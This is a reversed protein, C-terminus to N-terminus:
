ASCLLKRRGVMGIVEGKFWRPVKADEHTELYITDADIEPIDTHAHVSFLFAADYHGSPEKYRIDYGMLVALRVASTMLKPVDFGEVTAGSEHALISAAGLNCGFDFVRKGKLDGLMKHRELLDDRRGKVIRKGKYHVSQYPKGSASGFRLEPNSVTAAIYDKIPVEVEPCPIDLYRAIAYRHNGDVILKDGNFRTVVQIPERVGNLRIDNLLRDFRRLHREIGDSTGWSALLYDSFGGRGILYNYHPSDHVTHWPEGFLHWTSWRHQGFYRAM